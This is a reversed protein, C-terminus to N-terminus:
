ITLELVGFLASRIRSNYEALDDHIKVRKEAKELAAAVSDVGQVGPNYKELNKSLFLELGLAKAEWIVIGQGEYRSTLAFGDMMRLYPFPNPKNGLLTVVGELGLSEIQAQLKARDPGDGLLYLRLDPRKPVVLALQEMLIDFGKQHCIRGMTCLNYHTENVTFDAAEESKAFIEKTDLFNSIATVRRDTIGSARRFGDIVGPSVACFEDYHKLKKQFFHWLIKYRFENQLKLEIDNHIWMVRKKARVGLAGVACEHRYSNFDISVDYVTHAGPAKVLRRLLGFYILRNIYPYPKLYQVRLHPHEPFQFFRGREFLYLDVLCQDYSIGGLINVLAKQIGGVRLDSQFVAIRKLRTDDPKLAEGSVEASRYLRQAAEVNRRELLALRRMNEAYAGEGGESLARDIYGNLTAEDMSRFPVHMDQGAYRLFAKVKPDYDVGILPVGRGAAFVLGHLRMAVVASMRSMLGIALGSTLPERIVHYPVRLFPIVADAADGDSRHNIAVFVPTLGYKRYAYNAASAFVSAKKEFDQWNRLAFGIYRGKPDIEYATLASDIEKEPASFLALVPDSALIIEPRSVGLSDLEELSSDERLTIVDVYKNLIRKTRRRGQRRTVPGIGCGYMAVLNGCMKALKISTLYYWLSRRSTADQVLSGGGSLYMRTKRMVRIFGPFNFQHVAGIGFRARTESPTRSLAWIPMDPDIERMEQVIAELIADDGSNGHGYAGCIL